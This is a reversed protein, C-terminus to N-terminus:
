TIVGGGQGGTLSFSISYTALITSQGAQRIRARAYYNGFGTSVEPSSVVIGNNGAVWTGSANSYVGPSMNDVMIEYGSSAAGSLWIGYYADGGNVNATYITGDSRFTVSAWADYFQSGFGSVSINSGSPITATSKDAGKFQAISLGAVTTSIASNAAINPVYARGRVYSALDNPGQFFDVIERLSPSQSIPM